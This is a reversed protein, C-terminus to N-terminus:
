QKIDDLHARWPTHLFAPCQMNALQSMVQVNVEHITLETPVSWWLGHLDFLVCAGREHRDRDASDLDVFAEVDRGTRLQDM